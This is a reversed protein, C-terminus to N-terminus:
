REAARVAAAQKEDALLRLRQEEEASSHQLACLHGSLRSVQGELHARQEAHQANRGASAQLLLLRDWHVFLWQMCFKKLCAHYWTACM